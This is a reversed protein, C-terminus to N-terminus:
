TRPPRDQRDPVVVLPGDLLGDATVIWANGNTARLGLVRAQLKKREEAGIIKLRRTAVLDTWVGFGECACGEITLWELSSPWDAVRAPEECRPCPISAPM